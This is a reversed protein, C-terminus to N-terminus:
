AVGAIDRPRDLGLRRIAKTLGQRSLGLARAAEARRGHCQALAGAVARREHTMRIQHLPVVVEERGTAASAAVVHHVHRAGVRGRAPAAVVLAAVVNQFERVNGPWTHRCLAALADAGLVARKQAEATLTRWCSEALVPIDELRERLPPVTIRVVALRFLLDERFGARAALEALPRNTAAAVRVDISRASNEGVRRVEREQLARLIKAQARPSLEGVEDLFLTGGHADEFLGTRLGVAGTFAGRAHGFLEAEVLEDTIAACNVACFRRDRRPSLRHIARAVLEKGTGSEGEILVSFPTTAARMVAERLAVIAPSRGLIEPMAAHSRNAAHLADLRARCAAGSVAAVVRTAENLAAQRDVRGKVILRAVTVSSYRVPAVVFVLDGPGRHCGDTVQRNVVTLLAATDPATWGSASIRTPQDATFFAVAEAGCERRLWEGAAGLAARDDEADHMAQLVAPIAQVLQM